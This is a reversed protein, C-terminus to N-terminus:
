APVPLARQAGSRLVKILTGPSMLSPPPDYLNAVRLFRM